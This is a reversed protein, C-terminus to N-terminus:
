YDNLKVKEESNAQPKGASSNKVGYFIYIAYGVGLWVSLKMWISANLSTMLYVNIWVNILPVWPVMPVSFGLEETSQPQKSICVALILLIVIPIVFMALTAGMGEIQFAAAVKNLLFGHLISIFTFLAACNSVVTSTRQTPVRADSKFYEKGLFTPSGYDTEIKEDCAAPRYRLIMVSAAVLTYACLTGISMFDILEKLDFIAALIAALSAMSLTAIVPTQTKASVKALTRFILGDDAMAYVIRPLPFMCGLLSATLACVAGIGVPWKAWAMGASAFAVPLPAVADLIMYPVMLTLIGSVLLYSVCCILLSFVISLPINKQPNIAEEGTTAIADFGVFAYFCSATGSLIGSFGYPAFGGIGPWYEPQLDASSNLSLFCNADSVGPAGCQMSGVDDSETNNLSAHPGPYREKCNLSDEVSQQTSNLALNYVEDPGLGWNHFDICTIGAVIVFLIIAINVGTFIKNVIAFEKAGASLLLALLIIVGAAFIDPYEEFAGGGMYPMNVTIRRMQCGILQDLNGSWSKAVSSAGVVYSLVLNWGITFACLEGMTVYSYVYGSGSKPVRAGFEAYCVGSLISSIAAILFAIIVAPGTTSRGVEGSLVYIGAGLTSGVGLTTLDVVTLVRALKVGGEGDDDTRKKRLFADLYGM